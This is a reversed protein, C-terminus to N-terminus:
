VFRMAQVVSVAGDRKPGCLPGCGAAGAIVGLTPMVEFACMDEGLGTWPWVFWRAM